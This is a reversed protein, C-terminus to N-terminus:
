YSLVIPKIELKNEIENAGPALWAAKEAEKKELYSNVKGNLIVKNGLIEIQINDSDITASRLFAEKIKRKVVDASIKQKITINNTIGVVGLLSQVTNTVAKRQYSWDCEGELTVWGKEVKVKLKDENLASNWRLSNLVVEAIETDNRKGHNDLKVEIEEAVAKVGNIRKAAKEALVKKYYTDVIGSLTVVGNRVAVGIETAHLSPVWNLEAMVDKQIEIDTKM